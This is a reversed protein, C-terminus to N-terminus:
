LILSSRESPKSVPIVKGWTYPEPVRMTLSIWCKWRVMHCYCHFIGRWLVVAIGFVFCRGGLGVPVLVACFGPTIPGPGFRYKETDPFEICTLGFEEVLQNKFQIYWKVGAVMRSCGTNIMALIGRRPICETYIFHVYSTHTRSSISNRGGSMEKMSLSTVGFRRVCHWSELLFMLLGVLNCCLKVSNGALWIIAVCVSIFGTYKAHNGSRHAEAFPSCRSLFAEVSDSASSSRAFFQKAPTAEIAAAQSTGSTTATATGSFHSGSGGRDAIRKQMDSEFNPCDRDYQWHNLQGCSHCPQSKKMQLVKPHTSEAFDPAAVNVPNSRDKDKLAKKKVKFFGRASRAERLKTKANQYAYNASHINTSIEAPMEFGEDGSDQSLDSSDTDFAAHAGHGHTGHGQQATVVPYQICVAEIMDDLKFRNFCSTLVQQRQLETLKAGRRWYMYAALADPISVDIRKLRQLLAKFRNAYGRHQEDGRRRCKDLFEDLIETQDLIEYKGFTTRIFSKFILMGDNSHLDVPDLVSQAQTWAADKLSSLLKVARLKPDGGDLMEYLDVRNLYEKVKDPSGDFIPVDKQEIVRTFYSSGAEPPPGHGPHPRAAGLTTERQVACRSCLCFQQGDQHRDGDIAIFSCRRGCVACQRACQREGGSGAPTPQAPWQPSGPAGPYGATTWRAPSWTQQEDRWGPWQAATPETPRSQWGAHWPTQPEAVARDRSQWGAWPDAGTQWPDASAGAARGDDYPAQGATGPGTDGTWSAPPPPALSGTPPSTAADTAAAAARQPSPPRPLRTWSGDSGSGIMKCGAFLVLFCVVQRFLKPTAFLIAIWQETTGIDIKRLDPLSVSNNWGRFSESSDLPASHRKDAVVFLLGCHFCRQSAFSLLWFADLAVAVARVCRVQVLTICCLVRALVCKIPACRMLAYAQSVSAAIRLFTSSHASVFSSVLM